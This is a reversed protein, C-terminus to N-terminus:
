EGGVIEFRVSPDFSPPYIHASLSRQSRLLCSIPAMIARQIVIDAGVTHPHGYRWLAYM